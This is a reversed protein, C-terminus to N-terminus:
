NRWNMHFVGDSDGINALLNWWIKSADVTDFGENVQLEHPVFPAMYLYFWWYVAYWAASHKSRINKEKCIVRPASGREKVSSGNKLFFMKGSRMPSIKLTLFFVDPPPHVHFTYRLNWRKEFSRKSSWCWSEFSKVGFVDHGFMLVGGTCVYLYLFYHFFIVMKWYPFVVNPHSDRWNAVDKGELNPVTDSGYGM